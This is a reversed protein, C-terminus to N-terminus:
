PCGAVSLIFRDLNSAAAVDEIKPADAGDLCEWAGSERSKFVKPCALLGRARLFVAASEASEEIQARWSKWGTLADALERGTEIQTKAVRSYRKGSIKRGAM